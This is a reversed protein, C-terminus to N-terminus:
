NKREDESLGLEARIAAVIERCLAEPGTEILQQVSAPCGDIVLGEVAVLGWKLYDADLEAALVAESLRDDISEGAGHYELRQWLARVSRALAIRRGRSLRALRFRVGPHTASTVWKTSSYEASEDLPSSCNMM